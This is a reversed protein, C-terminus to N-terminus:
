IRKSPSLKNSFRGKRQQISGVEKIYMNPGSSFNQFCFIQTQFNGKAFKAAKLELVNVHCKSELLTQAEGTRHGESFAEWGKLSADSAIRLTPSASIISRGKTLHLNQVQCDLVTKVEVSLTIKSNHDGIEQLELKKQRQMARYQQSAPLVAIATSTLRGILQTLPMLTRTKKSFFISFLVQTM